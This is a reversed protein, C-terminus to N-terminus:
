LFAMNNERYAAKFLFKRTLTAIKNLNPVPYSNFKSKFFYNNDTNKVKSDTQNM